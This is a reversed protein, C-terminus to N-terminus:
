KALQPSPLGTNACQWTGPAPATKAGDIATSFSSCEIAGPTNVGHPLSAGNNTVFQASLLNPLSLTERPDICLATIGPM